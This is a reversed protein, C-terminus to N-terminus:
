CLCPLFGVLLARLSVRLLRGLLLLSFGSLPFLLSINEAATAAALQTYTHTNHHNKLSDIRALRCPSFTSFYKEAAAAAAAAVQTTHPGPTSQRTHRDTQLM